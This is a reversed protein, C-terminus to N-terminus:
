SKPIKDLWFNIAPVLQMSIWIVFTLLGLTLSTQVFGPFVLIENGNEDIKTPARLSNRLIQSDIAIAFKESIWIFLNVILIPLFYSVGARFALLYYGIFFLTSQMIILKFFILRQECQRWPPLNVYLEILVLIAVGFFCSSLLSSFQKTPFNISFVTLAIFISISSILKSQEDIINSLTWLGKKSTNIQNQLNVSSENKQIEAENNSM